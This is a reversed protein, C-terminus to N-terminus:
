GQLALHRKIMKRYRMILLVSALGLGAIFGMWVGPAGLNFVFGLLYGVPLNIVIYCFFAVWMPYRVDKMGRLIGLSIIQLGDVIQFLGGIILLTSAVKIVAPDSTFLLPLQNRLAIFLIATFCNYAFAMRYSVIAGVKISEIDKVGWYHSIVITTAATLGILIMFATHAVVLSVQSGALENVGIWGIMIASLSFSAVEMTMQSSIPIGVKLQTLISKISFATESFFSIYRNFRKDWGIYMLMIIPMVIRSILTALGAGAAGMAEFGCNGFILLYNLGINIVNSILVINMAIRTSGVGELFQKFSAFIMMPIISWALYYFYPTAIVVVDNDQGMHAMLPRIGMMVGFILIGFIGCLLLSNQLSNGAKRHEGNSYLEGVIPTLGMPLGMCFVFFLFFVSNAFSVGALPQAGLQGVMANDALQVVVQGVQSIVVPTALTITKIYQEKHRM